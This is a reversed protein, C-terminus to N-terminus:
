NGSYFTPNTLKVFHLSLGRKVQWTSSRAEGNTSYVREQPVIEDSDSARSAAHIEAMLAIPRVDTSWQSQLSVGGCWHQKMTDAVRHRINSKNISAETAGAAKGCRRHNTAVKTSGALALHNRAM